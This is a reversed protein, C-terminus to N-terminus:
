GGQKVKDTEAKVAKTRTSPEELLMRHLHTAIILDLSPLALSSVMLDFTKSTKEARTVVAVIEKTKLDILQLDHPNKRNKGERWKYRKGDMGNWSQGKRWFSTKSYFSKFKVTGVERHSLKESTITAIKQQGERLIWGDKKEAVYQTDGNECDVFTLTTIGDPTTSDVHLFLEPLVVQSASAGKSLLETRRKSLAQLASPSTPSSPASTFDLDLAHEIFSTASWSQRRSAPISPPALSTSSGVRQPHAPYRGDSMGMRIDNM